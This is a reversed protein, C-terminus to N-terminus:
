AAEKMSSASDALRKAQRTLRGAGLRGTSTTPDGVADNALGFSNEVARDSIRDTTFLSLEFWRILRKAALPWTHHTRVWQQAGGGLDSSLQTDRWLRVIAEVWQHVTQCELAPRRGGDFSLGQLVKPSAVIPRGMAAAELLKNKIGGGCRIPLVVVAASRAHPRVDAVQGLVSVGPLRALVKVSPHPNKGIIQWTADPHRQRLVPWVHQAFWIVADINPEFDMRGWMVLSRPRTPWPELADPSFYDLDVGNRITVTRRAGAVWRLLFTDVPNVGIAGDLGRVFLRELAAYLGTKMLRGPAATLPERRMCSLQFRLPEDAAYWVRQRHRDHGLGKLIMPSHQGLGIVCRPRCRKALRVVGAVQVPDVGQCRAIRKRAWVGPGAWANMLHDIDTAKAKPWDICLWRLAAPAGSSLPEISSVAVRHGLEHLALAMHYGRICYGQDLPWLPKESVFLFDYPENVNVM